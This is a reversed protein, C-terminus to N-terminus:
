YVLYYNELDLQSINPLKLDFNALINLSDAAFGRRFVDLDENNYVALLHGTIIEPFFPYYDSLLWVLRPGIELPCSKALVIDALQEIDGETLFNLRAPWSSLLKLAEVKLVLDVQNNLLYFCLDLSSRNPWAILSELALKRQELSLDNNLVQSSLNIFLQEDSSFSPSFRSIIFSRTNISYNSDYVIEQWILPAQSAEYVLRSLDILAMQIRLDDSKKFNNLIIRDWKFRNSRWDEAIIKTMAARDRLCQSHCEEQWSIQWASWAIEARLSLPYELWNKGLIPRFLLFIFLFFLITLTSVLYYRYKKVLFGISNKKQKGKLKNLTEEFKKFM